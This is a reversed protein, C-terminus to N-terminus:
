RLGLSDGYVDGHSSWKDLAKEITMNKDYGVQDETDDNLDRESSEGEGEGGKKKKPSGSSDDGTSESKIKNKLATLASPEIYDPSIRAGFEILTCVALRIQRWVTMRESLVQLPTKGASNRYNPRCGAELLERLVRIGDQPNRSHRKFDSPLSDRVSVQFRTLSDSKIANIMVPLSLLEDSIVVAQCAYHLASGLFDDGCTAHINFSEKSLVRVVEHKWMAAVHHLIYTNEIDHSNPDARRSLLSSITTRLREREDNDSTFKSEVCALHLPSRDSHDNVDPDIIETLMINIAESDLLVASWHLPTYGNSDNFIINAGADYLLQIMKHRHLICAYHLATYGSDDTDDIDLQKSQVLSLFYKLRSENQAIVADHISLVQAENSNARSRPQAATSASVTPNSTDASSTGATSQNATPSISTIHYLPDFGSRACCAKLIASFLADRQDTSKSIVKLQGSPWIVDFSLFTIDPEGSASYRRQQGGSVSGPQSQMLPSAHYAAPTDQKSLKMTILDIMNDLQLPNSMLTTVPLPSTILLMDTLLIVQKKQFQNGAFLSNWFSDKVEVMLQASFLFQRQRSVFFENPSQNNLNASKVNGSLM